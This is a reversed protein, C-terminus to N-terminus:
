ESSLSYKSSNIFITNKKQQREKKEFQKYSKFECRKRFEDILESYFISKYKTLFSIKKMFSSEMDNKKIM